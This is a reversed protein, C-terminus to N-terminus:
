WPTRPTQSRGHPRPGARPAYVREPALDGGALSVLTEMTRDFAEAEVLAEVLRALTSRRTRRHGHELMCVAAPSVRAAQALAELTLGRGVRLRRLAFGLAAAGPATEATPRSAATQRPDTMPSAMPTCVKLAYAESKVTM